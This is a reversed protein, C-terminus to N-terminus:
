GRRRKVIALVVLLVAVAAAAIGIIKVTSSKASANAAAAKAQADAKAQETAANTQSGYASAASSLVGTFANLLGSGWASSSDNKGTSAVLPPSSTSDTGDGLSNFYDLEEQTIDM